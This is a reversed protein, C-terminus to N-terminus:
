LGLERKLKDFEDDVKLERMRRQDQEQRSEYSTTTRRHPPVNSYSQLSSSNSSSSSSPSSSTGGQSSADGNPRSRSSSSSSSASSAATRTPSESGVSSARSAAEQNNNSNSSQSATRSSMSSTAGTARSRRRGSGRGRGYTSSGFGENMWADEENHPPRPTSPSSSSDPASTSSSSDNSTRTGTQYTSSSASPSSEQPSSSRSRRGNGGGAERKIDDWSAASGNSGRNSYPDGGRDTMLLEKYRTQLALLRKQAKKVYGQVVDKRANLEALSEEMEIKEMYRATMGVQATLTLIDEQIAKSKQTLQQVVLETDDLENRVEELSGTQLLVRLEANDNTDGTGGFGDVNGELFDIFDKFVGGGSGSSMGVAGAAAGVLLDSLIKGFSDGGADYDETSSASYNPIFDTWDVGGESNSKQNASADGSPPSSYPGSRRHPPTWGASSTGTSTGTTSSTTSASTSRSGYTSDNTARKGSLVEYAWNIKAFRDSAQKKDADSTTTTTVVDPHYQLARRKYARKIVKLDSTPTDLGLVLFPDNSTDIIISDNSRDNNNNAAQSLTSFTSRRTRHLTTTTTFTTTSPVLFTPRITRQVLSQGGWPPHNTPRLPTTRFVFADCSWSPSSKSSSPFLLISCGVTAVVGFLIFSIRGRPPLRSSALLLNM